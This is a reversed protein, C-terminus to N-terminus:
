GWDHVVFTIRDLGLAEPGIAIRLLFRFLLVRWKVSDSCPDPFTETM